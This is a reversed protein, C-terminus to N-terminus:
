LKLENVKEQVGKGILNWIRNSVVQLYRYIRRRRNISISHIKWRISWLLLQIWKARKSVCQHRRLLGWERPYQIWVNLKPGDYISSRKYHFISEKFDTRLKLNDTKGWDLAMRNRRARWQEHLELFIWVLLEQYNVKQLKWPM